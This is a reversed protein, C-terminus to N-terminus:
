YPLRGDGEWCGRLNAIVTVSKAIETGLVVVLTLNKVIRFRRMEKRAKKM